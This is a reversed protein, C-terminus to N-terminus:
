SRGHGRFERGHESPALHYFQFDMPHLLGPKICAGGASVKVRIVRSGTLARALGLARPERSRRPRPRESQQTQVPFFSGRPAPLASPGSVPVGAQRPLAGSAASDAVAGCVLEAGVGSSLLRNAKHCFFFFPPCKVSRSFRRSAPSRIRVLFVGPTPSLQGRTRAPPGSHLAHRSGSARQSGRRFGRRGRM